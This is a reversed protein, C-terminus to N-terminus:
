TPTDTESYIPSYGLLWNIAQHREMALSQVTDVLERDARSIPQDGLALDNELIRYGDLEFSGFWCKKSLAVFDCPEPRISFDRLRWHLMLLFTQMAALEEQPRLDPSSLLRAAAEDDLLGVAEFLDRARVLEDYPPLEYRHLAWALVGLGEIRWMANITQQRDLTGVRRQLVEWEDPEPEDGIGLAEIWAVTRQAVEQAEEVEEAEQELLARNAVAALVLARAAVREVTPPEPEDNNDDDEDGVADSIDVTALVKVPIRPLQAAPDSEGGAGILIRGAADRLSSPTFIVGDLHRVVAYLWQLREDNSDIDLECEPLSLSFRFSAIARLIDPKLPVDPFRSFYGAMGSMQMPWDPGDYYEASHGFVLRPRSRLLRKAGLVTAQSWDDDSGEVEVSNALSRLVDLVGRPDIKHSFVNIPEVAM